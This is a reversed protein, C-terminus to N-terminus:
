YHHRCSVVVIAEETVRYILRHEETIRRSWCGSFQHRLPEPKGLGTFPERAVQQILVLIKQQRGWDELERFAAPSFQIARM